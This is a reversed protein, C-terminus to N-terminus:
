TRKLEWVAINSWVTLDRKMDLNSFPYAVLSLKMLQKSSALVSFVSKWNKEYLGQVEAPLMEKSIGEVSDKVIQNIRRFRAVEPIMFNLQHKRVLWQCVLTIEQLLNNETNHFFPDECYVDLETLTSNTLDVIMQAQQIDFYQVSWLMANEMPLPKELSNSSDAIWRLQPRGIDFYSHHYFNRLFPVISEMAIPSLDCVSAYAQYGAGFTILSPQDDTSKRCGNSFNTIEKVSCSPCSILAHGHPLGKEICGQVVLGSPYYVTGEGRIVENEEKFKGVFFVNDRHIIIIDNGFVFQICDRAAYLSDSTPM